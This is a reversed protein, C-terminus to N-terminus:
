AIDSCWSRAIAPNNMEPVVRGRDSLTALSGAAELAAELVRGAGQRLDQAIYTIIEDLAARASEAWIVERVRAAM